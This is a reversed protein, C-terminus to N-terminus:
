VQKQANKEERTLDRIQRDLARQETRLDAQWKRVLDKPDVPKRFFDLVSAKGFM